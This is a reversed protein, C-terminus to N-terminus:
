LDAAIHLDPCHIGIRFQDGRSICFCVRGVVDLHQKKENVRRDIHFRYQHGLELAEPLTLCVGANSLDVTEGRIRRRGPLMVSATCQEPIRPAYRRDDRHQDYNSGIGPRRTTTMM